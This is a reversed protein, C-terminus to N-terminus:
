SVGLGELWAILESRTTSESTTLGRSILDSQEYPDALLDFMEEGGGPDIILKFQENRATTWTGTGVEEIASFVFDRHPGPSRLLPVFSRSDHIETVSGGALEAITAFLDTSSILSADSGRRELQGGSVLLPTNIGGQYVSGKAAGSSYPPQVTQRPSGNDGIFIVTTEARESPSLSDLLRGIHHDMAEIAAMYHPLADTGPQFSGLDGQSHTDAPPVHFPTHPANFALWLFWSDDQDRVWDIALDTLVETTYGTQTTTVGDATLPWAYYDDVDATLIGAYYDIGMSEPNFSSSRSLHWKGVVATAYRRDATSAMFAQLITENSSLAAGSRTVGTRFGHRGTIISARTPACTPTVWLNTFTLGDAALGDLTPTNPKVIGESFGPMADKGLDDAIILLINRESDVSGDPDAPIATTDSSTCSCLTLWVAVVGNRHWPM